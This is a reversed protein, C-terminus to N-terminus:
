NKIMCQLLTSASLSHTFPPDCAMPHVESDQMLPVSATEPCREDLMTWGKELLESLKAKQADEEEMQKRRAAMDQMMQPTIDFDEDTEDDTQQGIEAAPAHGLEEPSM